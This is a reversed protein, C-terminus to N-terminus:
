HCKEFVKSSMFAFALRPDDVEIVGISSSKVPISGKRCVLCTAGAGVADIWHHFSNTTQILSDMHDDTDIQIDIPAISHDTDPNGDKKQYDKLDFCFFMSGPSVKQYDWVISTVKMDLLGSFHYSDDPLMKLISGITITDTYTDIGTDVDVYTDVNSDTDQKTSLGDSADHYGLTLSSNYTQMYFLATSTFPDVHNRAFVNGKIIRQPSAFAASALSATAHNNTRHTPNERIQSFATGGLLAAAPTCWM